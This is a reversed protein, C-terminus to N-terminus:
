PVPLAGAPLQGMKENVGIKMNGTGIHESSKVKGTGIHESTKYKEIFESFTHMGNENVSCKKENRTGIIAIWEVKWHWDEWFYGNLSGNGTGNDMGLAM